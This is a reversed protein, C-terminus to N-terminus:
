RTSRGPIAIRDPTWRVRPPRIREAALAKGKARNVAALGRRIDAQNM